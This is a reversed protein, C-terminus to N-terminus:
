PDNSLNHNPFNQFFSPANSLGFPMVLYEYLGLRIRFATKWEKVEAICIKNFATVIDLKNFYIAKCLRDLTEKILPLPYKNKVILAKLGRYDVCFLFSEGPKKVTVIFLWFREFVKKFRM